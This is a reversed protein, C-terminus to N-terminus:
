NEYASEWMAFVATCLRRNEKSQLILTPNECFRNRIEEALATIEPLFKAEQKPAKEAHRNSKFMTM